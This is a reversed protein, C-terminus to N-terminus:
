FQFSIFLVHKRICVFLRVSNVLEAFGLYCVLLEGASAPVM